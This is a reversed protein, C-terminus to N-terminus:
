EQDMSVLKWGICIWVQGSRAVTLISSSSMCRKPEELCYCASLVNSAPLWTSVSVVTSELLSRFVGVPEPLSWCAGNPGLLGWRTAVSVRGIRLV